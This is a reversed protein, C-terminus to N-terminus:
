VVAFIDRLLGMKMIRDSETTCALSPSANVEVLWPKLTSDVIVDYGYCEFCHRDSIMVNQVAKLSHLVIDDIDAFLRACAERGRTAELFLRLNKVHWKGGHRANYDEGHKQQIAVNTLHMFANELDQAECSYKTTCFRAFGHAYQYARLPKYSTVLVYLRLDFKKGGVLLPSDIYRSIVYQQQQPQGSDRQPSQASSSSGWRSSQSWKKIQNKRAQALKNIIFIGRGQARNTPKMIWMAGGAQQSRRFEEVFLSYDAPLMYSVPVFDLAAPPLNGSREQDKQYRRINKVMLDKRTLEYHNPFHNIVQHDALRFGTEPNFITKVTQVNAWYVNWDDGETRVWGRRELNCIVVNKEFDVKWR